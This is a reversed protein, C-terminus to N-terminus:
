EFFGYDGSEPADPNEANYAELAAASRNVLLQLDPALVKPRESYYGQNDLNEAGSGTVTPTGLEVDGTAAAARRALLWLVLATAGAFLLKAQTPTM